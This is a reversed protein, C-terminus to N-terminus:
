VHEDDSSDTLQFEVEKKKDLRKYVREYDQMIEIDDWRM